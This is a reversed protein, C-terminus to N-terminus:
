GQIFRSVESLTFVLAVGLAVFSCRHLLPRFPAILHPVTPVVLLVFSTVVLDSSGHGTFLELLTIDSLGWLTFLNFLKGTNMAWHALYLLLSLAVVSFCDKASRLRPFNHAVACLLIIGFFSYYTNNLEWAGFISAEARYLAIILILLLTSQILRFRIPSHIDNTMSRAGLALSVLFLFYLGYAIEPGSIKISIFESVYAAIRETFRKYNDVLWQCWNALVILTGLNGVLTITAGVIGIWTLVQGKLIRRFSLATTNM